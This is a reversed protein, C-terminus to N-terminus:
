MMQSFEVKENNPGIITVFKVGNAFYPLYVPGDGGEAFVHNKEKLWSYVTDINAVDLAIHDWAGWLPHPEESAYVEIVATGLQLFTCDRDNAQWLIEFGLGKYFALTESYKGTPLGLHQIGTVQKKMDM